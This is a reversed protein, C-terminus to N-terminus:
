NPYASILRPYEEGYNIIWISTICPNRKDPTEIECILVYKEGYESTIQKAVNQNVAHNILASRFVEIDKLSFGYKRFYKEKASGCKHYPNLLYDTIKLDDVYSKDRNPMKNIM